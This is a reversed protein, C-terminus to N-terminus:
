PKFPHLCGKSYLVTGDAPLLSFILLSGVVLHQEYSVSSEVKIHIQPVRFKCSKKLGFIKLIAEFVLPQM